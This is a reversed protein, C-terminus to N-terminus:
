SEAKFADNISLILLLASYALSIFSAIALIPTPLGSSSEYVGLAWLKTYLSFLHGFFISCLVFLLTGSRFMKFITKMM